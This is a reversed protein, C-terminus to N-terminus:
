KDVEIKARWKKYFEMAKLIEPKFELTDASADCANDFMTEYCHLLHSLMKTKDRKAKRWLIKMDEDSMKAIKM